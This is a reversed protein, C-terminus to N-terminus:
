SRAAVHACAARLQREYPSTQAMTLPISHATFVLRPRELGVLADRVRDVQAALFGPHEGYPGIADIPPAGEVEGRAREIDERYQRCGSYSGFASTTIALARRAGRDRLERVADAVFPAANRNGWYVPLDLGRELAEVLARSQAMIPSVGGVHDYHTAVEELRERPVGRGRTVRELFPMVQDPAEPGGFSVVLLADYTM